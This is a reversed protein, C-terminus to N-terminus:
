KIFNKRIIKELFLQDRYLNKNKNSIELFKNNSINEDYRTIIYLGNNNIDFNYSIDSLNVTKYLSINSAYIRYINIKNYKFINIILSIKILYNKLVNNITINSNINDILAFYFSFLINRNTKNDFNFNFSNTEFDDFIKILLTNNIPLNNFSISSDLNNSFLLSNSTINIKNILYSNNLVNNINLLNFYINYSSLNNLILYNYITSYIEFNIINIKSVINNYTINNLTDFLKFIIFYQNILVGKDVIIDKSNSDLNFNGIVPIYFNNELKYIKQIQLIVDNDNIINSSVDILTLKQTFGYYAQFLNNFDDKYILLENPNNSPIINFSIDKTFLIQNSPNLLSLNLIYLGMDLGALIKINYNSDLFINSSYDSNSYNTDNINNIIIFSNQYGSYINILNITYDENYSYSLVNYNFDYINNPIINLVFSTFATGVDNSAYVFIIYSNIFLLGSSDLIQISGNFSNISIINPNPNNLISFIVNSGGTIFDSNINNFSPILNNYTININNYSLNQPITQQITINYQKSFAISNNVIFLINFSYHGDNFLHSINIQGTLSNITLLNNFSNDINFHIPYGAFYIYTPLFEGSYGYNLVFNKNNEVINNYTIIYINNSIVNILINNSFISNLNSNYNLRVNINYSNIPLNIFKNVIKNNSIDFNSYDSGSIDLLIDNYGGSFLKIFNIYNFSDYIFNYSSNYLISPTSHNIVLNFSIDINVNINQINLYYYKFQIIYNNVPIINKSTLISNNINFLNLLDHNDFSIAFGGTDFYLPNIIIQFESYDFTYTSQYNIIPNTKIINIYFPFIHYLHPFLSNYIKIKTFYNFANIRTNFSLSGSSQNISINIESYVIEFKLLNNYNSNLLNNYGNFFSPLIVFNNSYDFDYFDNNYNIIFPKTPKIIINFDNSNPNPNNLNTYTFTWTDSYFGSNDITLNGNHKNFIISNNNYFLHNLDQSDLSLPFSENNSNIIQTILLNNNFYTNNIKNVFTFKNLFLSHNIFFIISFLNFNQNINITIKFPNNINNSIFNNFNHIKNNINLSYFFTLTQNQKIIFTKDFVTIIGNQNINIYNINEPNNNKFDYIFIINNSNDSNSFYPIFINNSIDSNIINNFNSSNYFINPIINIIIKIYRIYLDNKIYFYLEYSGYNLLDTNIDISSSHNTNIIYNINNFLMFLNTLSEDVTQSLTYIQNRYVTFINNNNTFGSNNINYIINLPPEKRFKLILLYEVFINNFNNNTAKILIAFDNNLILNNNIPNSKNISIIGTINNITLINNSILISNNINIDNDISIINYTYNNDNATLVPSLDQNINDLIIFSYPYNFNSPYVFLTIPLNNSFDPYNQTYYIINFNYIGVNTLNNISISANNQNISINPNLIDFFYLIPLNNNNTKNPISVPVFNSNQNYFSNLINNSNYNLNTPIAPIITFNYFFSNVFNNSSIDIILNSYTTLSLSPNIILNNNNISAFTTNILINNKLITNFIINSPDFNINFTKPLDNYSIIVTSNNLYSESNHSINFNIINVTIEFSTISFFSNFSNNEYKVNIFYKGPLLNKVITIIGLNIDISFSNNYNNLISFSVSESSVLLGNYNIIQNLTQNYNYNINNYSIGFPNVRNVFINFSVDYFFKNSNFLDLLSQNQNITLLSLSNNSFDIIQSSNSFSNSLEIHIKGIPPNILILNNNIISYPSNILKDYIIFNSINSTSFITPSFSFSSNYSIDFDPNINSLNFNPSFTFFPKIILNFFLNQNNNNFYIRSNYDNYFSQIRFKYVGIDNNNRINISGKNINNISISNINISNTNNVNILRSTINNFLSNNSDIVYNISYLTIIELSNFIIIPQITPEVNISFENFFYNRIPTQIFNSVSYLGYNNDNLRFGSNDIIFNTINVNNRRIYNNVLLVSNNDFVFRKLDFTSPYILSTNNQNINYNNEYIINPVANDVNINIIFSSKLSNIFINNSYGSLDVSCLYGNLNFKINNNISIVGSSSNISVFSSVNNTNPSISLTFIFQTLGGSDLIPNNFIINNNIDTNIIVNNYSLSKLNDPIINITINQIFINNLLINVSYSGVSLNNLNSIIGTNSISINSNNTTFLVNINNIIYNSNPYLVSPSITTLSNFTINYSSNYQINIFISKDIISNNDNIIFWNPIINFNSLSARKNVGIINNLIINNLITNNFIANNLTTNSFNANTLNVNTLNVNNINRNSLNAGIGFFFGNSITYISSLNLPTGTINNSSVFNLSSDLLDTNNLNINILPIGNLIINNSRTSPGIIFNNYFVFNSPLNSVNSVNSTKLLSLNSNLLSTNSFNSDSINSNTFNSNNFTAFSFDCNIFISNSFNSNSFNCFSFNINNFSSNSLNSNKFNSYNFNINSFSSNSFNFNSLNQNIYNNNNQILNGIINNGLLIFFNNNISIVNTYVLSNDILEYIFNNYFTYNKSNISIIQGENCFIIFSTTLTSLDYINNTNFLLNYNTQNYLNPNIFSISVSSKIINLNSNINFRNISSNFTLYIVLFSKNTDISTNNFQFIFGTSNNKHLYIYSNNSLNFNSITYNNIILQDTNNLFLFSTNNYTQFINNNQVLIDNNDYIDNNNQLFYNSNNIFLNNYNSNLIINSLNCINKNNDILIISINSNYIKLKNNYSINLNDSSISGIIKSNLNEDTLFYGSEYNQVNIIKNLNLNSNTIPINNTSTIIVSGENKSTGRGGWSSVNGFNDLIFFTYDNSFIKYVNTPQTINIIDNEIFNKRITYSGSNFGGGRLYINGTFDLLCYSDVTLVVDKINNLNESSSEERATNSNNLFIVHDSNIKTFIWKINTFNTLLTNNFSPSSLKFCSGNDLLIYYNNKNVFIFIIDFTYNHTILSSYNNSNLSIYITRLNNNLFLVDNNNNVFYSIINSPNISPNNFLFNYIINNNSDNSSSFSFTKNIISSLFFNFSM